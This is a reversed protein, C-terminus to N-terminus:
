PTKRRALGLRHAFRNASGYLGYAVNGLISYFPGHVRIVLTRVLGSIFRWALLAIEMSARHTNMDTAHECGEVGVSGEVAVMGTGVIAGVGVGVDVLAGVGVSVAVAIAVGTGVAM